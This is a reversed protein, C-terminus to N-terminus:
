QPRIDKSFLIPMHVHKDTVVTRQWWKLLHKCFPPICYLRMQIFKNKIEKSVNPKNCLQHICFYRGKRHEIYACQIILHCIPIPTRRTSPKLSTTVYLILSKNTQLAQGDNVIAKQWMPNYMDMILSTTSSQNIDYRNM